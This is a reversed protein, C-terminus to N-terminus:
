TLLLGAVWTGAILLGSLMEILMSIGVAKLAAVTSPWALANNDLRIREALYIGAVFGIFLGLVPIVFFGLIGLLSGLGLTSWPVGADRMRKGPVIYKVVSGIVMIASAVALISWATPTRLSLAWLAVGGWCLLLGPLVPLVIGALGVVIMVGALVTVEV